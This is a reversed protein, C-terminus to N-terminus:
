WGIFVLVTDTSDQTKPDRTEFILSKRKTEQAKTM